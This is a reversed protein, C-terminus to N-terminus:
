AHMDQNRSASLKGYVMSAWTEALEDRYQDTM